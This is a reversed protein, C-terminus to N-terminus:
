VSDTPLVNEKGQNFVKAVLPLKVGEWELKQIMQAARNVIWYDLWGNKTPDYGVKMCGDVIEKGTQPDFMFDERFEEVYDTYTDNIHWKTADEYLANVEEETMNDCPDKLPKSPFRFIEAHDQVVSYHKDVYLLEFNDPFIEGYCIADRFCSTCYHAM